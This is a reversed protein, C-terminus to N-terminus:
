QWIGVKVVVSRRHAAGSRPLEGRCVCAYRQAALLVTLWISITHFITPLYDTLCFYAYCWSYPVWDDKTGAAYLWIYVPIPWLGTLSDSLAIAVLVANTATRMVPRVLVVCVLVNCVVIVVVLLPVFYGNILTDGPVPDVFFARGTNRPRGTVPVATSTTEMM